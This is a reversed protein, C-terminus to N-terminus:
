HGKQFYTFNSKWTDVEPYFFNFSTNMAWETTHNNKTCDSAYSFVSENLPHQLAFTENDNATCM